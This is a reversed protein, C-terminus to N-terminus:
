PRFTHLPEPHEPHTEYGLMIAIMDRSVHTALQRSAATDSFPMTTFIAIQPNEFPAFAGFTTHSPRGRVEESTGTKGAVRIPFNRFANVATGGRLPAPETVSIMGRFIENWTSDSITLQQEVPVPERRLVTQGQANHITSVLFLPLNTGRNAIISMARAMVAPTYNNYSQGIATRVTDGDRWGYDWRMALPNNRRHLFEKLSPSAIRLGQHGMHNFRHFFEGIEVGTYDDLGFFMMYDNLTSIGMRFAVEYFFFNCSVAIAQTVNIAGHHGMCHAYPIGASRFIRTCNIRTNPAIAGSSELGAVATFMKFSSGPARAEQFPRNLTPSTPDNNVRIFYEIDLVNTLRNNDFSPYAISALVAGTHTCMVLFSGTAPDINFMQPTLERANIAAITVDRATNAALRPASLRTAFDGPDTIIGLDIYMLLIQEVTIRRARLGEVLENNIRMMNERNNVNAEPIRDEIYRRLFYAAGGPEAELIQRLPLNNAEILSIFAAAISIHDSNAVPLQMRGILARSLHDKLMYFAERQLELDLTLFLRDGAQPERIVVPEGIRRGRSDVEIRQMGPVGRLHQEMALELGAQGVICDPSYDQEEGWLTMQEATIRRIHGIIHSVYIGGPYERYTSVDIFVGLFLSNLEEIAAVTEFFVDYAIIFPTPNYVEWSWLRRQFIMTRFNLIRWVDTNCLEPCIEFFERLFHFSEEATKDLNPLDMDRKWHRENRERRADDPFTFAFPEERSIPMGVVHEVGHREFLLTLELLAENSIIVSPDMKVVNVPRNIALPRGYRDYITGRIAPIPIEITRNQTVPRVWSDAMVIQLEFLRVMLLYFLVLTILVLWLIRHTLFHYVHRM